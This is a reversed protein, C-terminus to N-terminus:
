LDWRNRVFGAKKASLVAAEASAVRSTASQGHPDGSSVLPDTEIVMSGIPRACPENGLPITTVFTLMSGTRCRCCKGEPKTSDKSAIAAPPPLQHLGSSAGIRTVLLSLTANQSKASTSEGFNM